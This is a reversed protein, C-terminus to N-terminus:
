RTVSLWMCSEKYIYPLYIEGQSLATGPTYLPDILRMKDEADYILIHYEM